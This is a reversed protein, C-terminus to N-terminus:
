TCLHDPRITGRRLTSAIEQCTNTEARALLKICNGLLCVLQENLRVSCKQILLLIGEDIRSYSKRFYKKPNM